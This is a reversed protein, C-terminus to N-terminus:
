WTTSQVQMGAHYEALRRRTGPDIAEPPSDLPFYRAEAIELSRPPRPEGLPTCIFVAIYNSMGDHFSDYVGMLHDIRVNVGTEELAERRAAEALREFRAVGGGPLGWPRPGARHRVLLVSSGRVVFARVGVTAPRWMGWGVRRLATALAYIPGLIAQEIRKM